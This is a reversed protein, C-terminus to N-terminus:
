PWPPSRLLVRQRSCCPTGPSSCNGLRSLCRCRQHRLCREFRNDRTPRTYRNPGWCHCTQRPCSSVGPTTRLPPPAQAPRAGCATPTRERGQRVFPKYSLPSLARVPRRGVVTITASVVPLLAIRLDAALQEQSNLEISFCCDQGGVRGSRRTGSGSSVLNSSRRHRV